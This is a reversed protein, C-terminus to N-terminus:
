NLLSPDSVRQNLSDDVSNMGKSNSLNPNYVLASNPETAPGEPRDQGDPPVVKESKKKSLPELIMQGM